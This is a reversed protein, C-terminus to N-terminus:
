LTPMQDIIAKILIKIVDIEEDTLDIGDLDSVAYVIVGKAEIKAAATDFNPLKDRYHRAIYKRCNKLDPM